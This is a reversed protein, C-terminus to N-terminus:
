KTGKNGIIKKLGADVLDLALRNAVVKAINKLIVVYLPKRNEKSM